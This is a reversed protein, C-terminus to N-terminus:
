DSSGRIREMVEKQTNADLKKLYKELEQRADDIEKSSPEEISSAIIDALKLARRKAEEIEMAKEKKKLLDLAENAKKM